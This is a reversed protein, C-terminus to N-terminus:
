GRISLLPPPPRGGLPRVMPPLGVLLGSRTPNPGRKEKRMPPSFSPSPSPSPFPAAGRRRIWNLSGQLPARAVGHPSREREGFAWTPGISGRPTGTVGRYESIYGFWESVM